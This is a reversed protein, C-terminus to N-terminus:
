SRLTALELVPSTMNPFARVSEWHFRFGDPRYTIETFEIPEADAYTTSTLRLVFSGPSTEMMETHERTARVLELTSVARTVTTGYSEELTRYLSRSRFDLKEIGPFRVPDLHAALIAVPTGKSRAKRILVFVKPGFLVLKGPQRKVTEIRASVVELEPGGLQAEHAETFGSLTSIWEHVKPDRVFTGDGQRRELYGEAALALLAQRVPALSVGFQDAIRREPPLRSGPQLREAEIEGRIFESIQVHLPILGRRARWSLTYPWGDSSRM